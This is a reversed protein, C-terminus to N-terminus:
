THIPEGNNWAALKTLEAERERQATLNIYRGNFEYTDFSGDMFKWAADIAAKLAQEEDEERENPEIMVVEDLQCYKWEDESEEDEDLYSLEGVVRYQILPALQEDNRMM